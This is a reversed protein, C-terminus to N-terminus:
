WAGTAGAPAYVPVIREVPEFVLKFERAPNYTTTRTMGEESWQGITHSGLRIAGSEAKLPQYITPSGLYVNTRPSIDPEPAKANEGAIHALRSFRPEHPHWKYQKLCWAIVRHQIHVSTRTSGAYIWFVTLGGTTNKWSQNAFYPQLIDVHGDYRFTPPGYDARLDSINHFDGDYERLKARLFGELTQGSSPNLRRYANEANYIQKGVVYNFRKSFGKDDNFLKNLSYTKPTGRGSLFHALNDSAATERGESRLQEWAIRLFQQDQYTQNHTSTAHTLKWAGWIEVPTQPANLAEAIENDGVPRTM